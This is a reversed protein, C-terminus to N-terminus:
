GGLTSAIRSIVGTAALNLGCTVGFIRASLAKRAINDYLKLNEVLWEAEDGQYDGHWWGGGPNSETMFVFVLHYPTETSVLVSTQRSRGFIRKIDGRSILASIEIYYTTVLVHFTGLVSWVIDFIQRCRAELKPLYAIIVFLQSGVVRRQTARSNRRIQYQLM